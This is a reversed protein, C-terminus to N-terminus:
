LIKITNMMAELERIYERKDFRPAFIYGCVTVVKNTTRNYISYQVFPGGGAVGRRGDHKWLGRFIVADTNQYTTVLGEPACCPDYETAMYSGKVEGPVKYKLVSDRHAMIHIPDITEKSYPESWLLIGQQIWYTQNDTHNAQSGLMDRSRERKVWMFDDERVKLQSKRPLCISIGFTNQAQEDVSKNHSSKYERILSNLEFENIRQLIPDFDHRIFHLMRGLDSDKIILFLQGKAYYDKKEIVATEAYTSDPDLYIKLMVRSMKNVHTLDESQKHFFNFVPEPRLYPGQVNQDLQARLAEGIEGNWYHNKMLVLIHGHEGSADPLLDSRSLKEGCAILLLSTLAILVHKM